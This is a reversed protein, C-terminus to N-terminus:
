SYRKNIIRTFLIVMKKFHFYREAMYVHKRCSSLKGRTPPNLAKPYRNNIIFLSILLKVNLNRASIYLAIWKEVYKVCNKVNKVYKVTKYLKSYLVPLDYRFGMGQSVSMFGLSYLVIDFYLATYSYMIRHMM